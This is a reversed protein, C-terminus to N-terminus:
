WSTYLEPVLQNVNLEGAGRVSLRNKRLGGLGLRGSGVESLTMGGRNRCDSTWRCSVHLESGLHSSGVEDDPCRTCGSHTGPCCSEGLHVLQRVTM